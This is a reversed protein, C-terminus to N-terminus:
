FLEKYDEVFAPLAKHLFVYDCNKVLHQRIEEVSHAAPTVSDEYYAEGDPSFNYPYLISVPTFEYQAQLRVLDSSGPAMYLMTSEAPCHKQVLENEWSYVSRFSNAYSNMENYHKINKAMALPNIVICLILIAPLASKIRLQSLLSHIFYCLVICVGAAITTLYREFSALQVAEYESFSFLYSFLLGLTYVLSIALLATGCALSAREKRKSLLYTVLLIAFPITLIMIPTVAINLSFVRSNFLAGKFNSITTYRYQPATGNFLSLISDLSVASFEFKEELNYYKVYTSWSLKAVIMSIFPICLHKINCIIESKNKNKIVVQYIIFVLVTAIALGFGSAKALTLVAISLSLSIVSFLDKQEEFCLLVVYGWIVGLLMDVYTSRYVDNNIYFLMSLCLIIGLGIGLINKAKKFAPLTFAVIFINTALIMRSESYSKCIKLFFYEFLSQAPPYTLFTATTPELNGFNNNMYMNKVVLAWHSFEDYSYILSSRGIYWFYAFVVAFVFIGSLNSLSMNLKGKRLIFVALFTVFPLVMLLCSATEMGHVFGSIYLVLVIISVACPLGEIFQKNFIEAISLALLFVIAFTLIISV